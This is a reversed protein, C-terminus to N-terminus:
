KGERKKGKWEAVDIRYVAVAEVMEDWFEMQSEPAMHKMILELGKIKEEKETLLRINGTGMISEYAFSYSCTYPGEIVGGSWDLELAVQSQREFARAKRGEKASHIYFTLAGDGNEREQWQYGYNVPVIFMGEEDQSGIHLVHCKEVISLLEKKDTIERKKLRMQAM